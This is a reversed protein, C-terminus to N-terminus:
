KKMVFEPVKCRAVDVSRWVQGTIYPEVTLWADLAGRDEFDMIMVSGIMQENDDVLAAAYLLQGSAQMQKAGALHLDRMSMRRELAHQDNGDYGTVIFQMFGGRKKYDTVTVLTITGLCNM